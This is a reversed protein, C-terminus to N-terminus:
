EVIFMDHELYSSELHYNELVFSIRPTNDFSTYKRVGHELDGRFRVMKGKEPIITQTPEDEFGNFDFLELEGGTCVNSVQLYLVNVCKPLFVRYPFTKECIDMTTDHHREVSFESSASCTPIYLINCVFANCDDDKIRDFLEYLFDLQSDHFNQKLQDNLTFKIIMGRSNNFAECLPNDNLYGSSMIKECYQACEQLSLFSEIETVDSLDCQYPIYKVISLDCTYNIAWMIFLLGFFILIAYFLM